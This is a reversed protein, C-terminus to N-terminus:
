EPECLLVMSTRGHCGLGILRMEGGSVLRLREALQPASLPFNRVAVNASLRERSLAKVTRRDFHEARVIRYRQGPFDDLPDASIFLNTMPAVMEVSECRTLLDPRQGKMVAPWPEYLWDGAAPLRGAMAPEIREGDLGVAVDGRPTGITLAVTTPAAERDHGVVAVVEKCETPTGAIYLAEIGPLQAAVATLDLMPSMKVILKRCRSMILDLCATLDPACDALGYVRRGDDARRAPDIFALDFRAEPHEELWRISDGEIPDIRDALGFAAANHRLAEVNEPKLDFATVTAGCHSAIAMADVGLGATLDVAAFPGEGALSAHRRALDCGTAQEAALTNPFIFQSGEGLLERFKRRHRHRMEAQMIAFMRVPDSHHKLRLQNFDTASACEGIMDFLRGSIYPTISSM